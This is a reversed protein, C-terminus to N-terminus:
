PVFCNPFMAKAVCITDDTYTCSIRASRCEESNYDASWIEQMGEAVPGSCGATTAAMVLGVIAFSVIMAVSKRNM